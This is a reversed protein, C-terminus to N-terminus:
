GARVRLDGLFGIGMVKLFWQSVFGSRYAAPNKSAEIQSVARFRAAGKIEPCEGAQGLGRLCLIPM